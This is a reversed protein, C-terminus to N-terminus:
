HDERQLQWLGKQIADLPARDPSTNIGPLVPSNPLSAKLTELERRLQEVDTGPMRAIVTGLYQLAALVGVDFRITLQQEDSM